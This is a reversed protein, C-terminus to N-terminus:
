GRPELGGVWLKSAGKQKGLNKQVKETVKNKEPVAAGERVVSAGL